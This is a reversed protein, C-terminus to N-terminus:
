KLIMTRSYLTISKELPIFHSVVFFDNKLHVENMGYGLPILDSRNEILAADIPKDLLISDFDHNGLTIFNTILEDYPYKTIVEEIQDNLYKRKDINGHTGDILDGAHFIYNINNKKCYDYVLDLYSLNDDWSGIHTDSIAVFHFTDEDPSTIIAIKEEKSAINNQDFTGDSYFSKYYLNDKIKYNLKNLIEVSDTLTLSLMDKIESCSYGQQLYAMFSEEM